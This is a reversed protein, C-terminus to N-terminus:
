TIYNTIAPQAQASCNATLGTNSRLSVSDRESLSQHSPSDARLRKEVAHPTEHCRQHKSHNSSGNLSLSPILGDQHTWYSTAIIM